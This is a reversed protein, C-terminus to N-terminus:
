KVTGAALTFKHFSFVSWTWNCVDDDDDDDNNPMCWWHTAGSAALLRWLPKNLALEIADELTLCTVSLFLFIIMLLPKCRFVCFGVLRLCPLSVGIWKPYETESPQHVWCSALSWCIIINGTHRRDVRFQPPLSGPSVEDDSEDDSARQLLGGGWTERRKKQAQILLMIFSALLWDPELRDISGDM